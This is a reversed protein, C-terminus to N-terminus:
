GGAATLLPADVVASYQVSNYAFMDGLLSGDSLHLKQGAKQHASGDNSPTASSLPFKTDTQTSASTDSLLVVETEEKSVGSLASTVCLTWIVGLLLRRGQPRSFYLIMNYM